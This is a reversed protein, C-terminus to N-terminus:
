KKALRIADLQSKIEEPSLSTDIGLDKIFQKMVATKTDQKERALGAVYNRVDTNIDKVARHLINKKDVAVSKQLEHGDKDVCLQSFSMEKYELEVDEIPTYRGIVEGAKNKVDKLMKRNGKEKQNNLTLTKRTLIVWLSKVAEKIELQFLKLMTNEIKRHALKVDSLCFTSKDNWVIDNTINYSAKNLAKLTVLLEKKTNNM